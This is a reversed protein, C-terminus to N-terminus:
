PAKSPPQTSLSVQRTVSPRRVVARGLADSGAGLALLRPPEERVDLELAQAGPREVRPPEAQSGTKFDPERSHRLEFPGRDHHHGARVPALRQQARAIPHAGLAVPEHLPVGHGRALTAVEAVLLAGQLLEAVALGSAVRLATAGFSEAASPPMRALEALCRLGPRAGAPLAAPRRGRPCRSAGGRPRGRGRKSTSTCAFEAPTPRLRVANIEKERKYAMWTELVDETFVDGKLLFAHDRRLHDLAEELSGPMKPVDKLEEPTLGYIDKDLADGPDIRNEIGDLGAM